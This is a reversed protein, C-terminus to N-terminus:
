FYRTGESCSYLWIGTDEAKYSCNYDESAERLSNLIESAQKIEDKRITIDLYTQETSNNREVWTIQELTDYLIQSQARKILCQKESFRHRETMDDKMLRSLDRKRPKYTVGRGVYKNVCPSVCSDGCSPLAKSKEGRSECSDAHLVVSNNRWYYSERKTTEGYLSIAAFGTIVCQVISSHFGFVCNMASRQERYVLQIKLDRGSYKKAPIKGELVHLKDARYGNEKMTLHDGSLSKLRTEAKEHKEKAKKLEQSYEEWDERRYDEGQLTRYRHTRYISDWNRKEYFTRHPLPIVGDSMVALQWLNIGSKAKPREWKVGQCDQLYRAMAIINKMDYTIFLDWDSDSVDLEKSFYAAARSGSILCECCTLQLLFKQPDEFDGLYRIINTEIM